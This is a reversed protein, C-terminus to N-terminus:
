KLNVSRKINWGEPMFKPNMSEVFNTRWMEVFKQIDKINDVVLKGDPIKNKKLKINLEALEELEEFTPEHGIYKTILKALEVFRDLPINKKEDLMLKSFVSAIKLKKQKLYEPDSQLPKKVEDILKQKLVSAYTREYEAHHDSCMIVVDHSSRSKIELPFHKRYEYPVVHHKTLVSLDSCGCVVCKNQKPKITFDDVSEGKTKFTLRITKPNESIVVGLNRDLYWNARKETVRSLQKGDKSELICNGYIINTRNGEQKKM